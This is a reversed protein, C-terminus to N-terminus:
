AALGRGVKHNVVHLGVVRRVHLQNQFFIRVDLQYAALLGYRHHLPEEAYFQCCITQDDHAFAALQFQALVRKLEEGGRHYVPWLHQHRVVQCLLHQEGGIGEALEACQRIVVRFAPGALCAAVVEVDYAFVAVHNLRYQLLQATQGDLHDAREVTGNKVGVEGVIDVEVVCPAAILWLVLADEDGVTRKVAVRLLGGELQCADQLAVGALLHRHAVKAAVVHCLGDLIRETVVAQYQGGRGVVTTHHRDHLVKHVM